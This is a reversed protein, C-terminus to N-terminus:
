TELLEVKLPLSAKKGDPGVTPYAIGARNWFIDGNKGACLSLRFSAVLMALVVKMELQSFKFGICARGGGIFTMLNSYVGPIKADAVSEPLKGDLWREPKWECADDGWVEKNRNSSYIGILISTGKPVHIFTTSTGDRLTLPTSLPMVVDRVNERSTFTVPPYLRLTERCVADLYPLSVLEDYEFDQGGNQSRAEILEARLREQVDPHLCLLHLIRAIANSTTDTGAFTFTTVQAIIEEDPLRDAADANMNERLMVSMLDRGELIRMKLEADNSELAIGKERVIKRSTSDLVDLIYKMHQMGAHPVLHFCRKIFTGIAPRRQSLGMLFIILPTLMRFSSALSSSTPVFSKIANAYDNEVNEVLPDFSHGFGGQGILELATRGMWNLVDVEGAPSAGLETQIGTRLRNVVEYFLPTLRRMHAISFVPNLLKRQRRHHEGLTSLLGPGTTLRRITLSSPAEEYVDQDKVVVHHLAKPDFVWLVRRGLLGTCKVVQGYNNTLSDLYQWAGRNQLQVINGKLTSPPAPGPINDLPSPLVYNRALKWLLLLLGGLAAWSVAPGLLSM